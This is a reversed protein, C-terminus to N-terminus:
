ASSSKSTQRKREDSTWVFTLRQEEGCKPDTDPLHTKAQEKPAEASPYWSTSPNQVSHQPSPATVVGNVHRRLWCFRVFVFSFHWLKTRYLYARVCGGVGVCGGVWGCVWVCM